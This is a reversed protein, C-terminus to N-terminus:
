TLTIGEWLLDAENCVSREYLLRLCAAFHRVVCKVRRTRHLCDWNLALRQWSSRWSPGKFLTDCCSNRQGQAGGSMLGSLSQMAWSDDNKLSVGDPASALWGVNRASTANFSLWIIFWWRVDNNWFLSKIFRNQLTKKRKRFSIFRTLRGMNLKYLEFWNLLGINRMVYYVHKIITRITRSPRICCWSHLM